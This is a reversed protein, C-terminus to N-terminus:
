PVHRGVIVLDRAEGDRRAVGPLRGWREFGLKEFLRLSPANHAFIFGLLTEFGLEPGRAVAAGLLQAGIGRRQAEPAVYVSVEATAAYAPRGYFPGFSLWGVVRGAAEAVWLPHEGPTHGEFWERRSDVSVPETDATAMRGPISANHIAVIAELDGPQADRLIM